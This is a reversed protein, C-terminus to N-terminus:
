AWSPRQLEDGTWGWESLMERIDSVSVDDADCAPSLFSYGLNTGLVNRDVLDSLIPSYELIVTGPIGGFDIVLPWFDRGIGLKEGSIPQCEVGMGRLLVLWKKTFDSMKNVFLRYTGLLALM